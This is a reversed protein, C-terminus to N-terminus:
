IVKVKNINKPVEFVGLVRKLQEISVPDTGSRENFLRVVEELEEAIQSYLASSLAPKLLGQEALQRTSLRGYRSRAHGDVIATDGQYGVTFVFDERRM